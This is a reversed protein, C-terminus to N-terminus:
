ERSFFRVDWKVAPEYRQFSFYVPEGAPLTIGNPSVTVGGWTSWSWRGTM